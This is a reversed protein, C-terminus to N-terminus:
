NSDMNGNKFDRYVRFSLFQVTAIGIVVAEGILYKSPLIAAIGLIIGSTVINFILAHYIPKM